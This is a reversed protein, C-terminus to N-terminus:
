GRLLFWFILVLLTAFLILRGSKYLRSNANDGKANSKRLHTTGEIFSGRVQPKYDKDPEELGMERKIRLEREQMAEKRPDYYITKHDYQRPKRVSYFPFLAM